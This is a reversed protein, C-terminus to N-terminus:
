REIQFIFEWKRRRMRSGPKSITKLSSQSGDM